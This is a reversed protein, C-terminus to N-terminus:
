HKTQTIYRLVANTMSGAETEPVVKSPYREWSQFVVQEPAPISTEVARARGLMHDEAELNEQDRHDSNYIVGFAIGRARVSQSVAKLPGQWATSWVVDAHFFALKQGYVAEFTRLWETIKDPWQPDKANGLVPETDGVKMDPFITRVEALHQAADRAISAVDAHCARPGDFESGYWLPEDMDVIAIDGGLRKIKRAVDAAFRGTYGEVGRGCADSATLFGLELALAIHNRKLFDFMKALQQEDGNQVLRLYIKFVRIHKLVTPWPSPSEFLEFYDAAGGAVNAPTTVLPRPCFWIEPEQASRAPVCLVALAFAITWRCLWNM